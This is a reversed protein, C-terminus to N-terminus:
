DPAALIRSTEGLESKVHTQLADGVDLQKGSIQYRM